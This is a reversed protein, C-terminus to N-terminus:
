QDAEAERRTRYAKALPHVKIGGFNGYCRLDDTKGRHAYLLGTKPSVAAIARCVPCRVYFPKV